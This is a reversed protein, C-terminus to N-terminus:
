LAPLYIYFVTGKGIESSFFIEGNYQKVIGHVTALGLGVGHGVTKTTFFPDFVRNQIKKEIGCGTDQVKLM